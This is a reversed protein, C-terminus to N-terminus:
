IFYVPLVYAGMFDSTALIGLLIFEVMSKIMMAAAPRTM